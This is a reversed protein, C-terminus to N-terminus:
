GDTQDNEVGQREVNLAISEDEVFDSYSDEEIEANLKHCIDIFKHSIRLAPIQGSHYYTVLYFVVSLNQQTIYEFLEDSHISLVELLPSIEDEPNISKVTPTSFCWYYSNEIKRKCSRTRQFYDSQKKLLDFELIHEIQAGNVPSEGNIMLEWYIESNCNSM